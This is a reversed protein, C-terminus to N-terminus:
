RVFAGHGSNALPDWRLGTEAAVRQRHAEREEREARKAARIAAPTRAADREDLWRAYDGSSSDSVAVFDEDLLIPRLIRSGSAKRALGVQM